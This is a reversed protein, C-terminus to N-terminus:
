SISKRTVCLFMYLMVENRVESSWIEISCLQDRLDEAKLSGEDIGLEGHSYFPSSLCLGGTPLQRLKSPLCLKLIINHWTGRRFHILMNFRCLLKHSLKKEGNKVCPM